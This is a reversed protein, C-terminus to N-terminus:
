KAGAKKRKKKLRFQKSQCHINRCKDPKKGGTGGSQTRTCMMCVWKNDYKRKEAVTAKVM